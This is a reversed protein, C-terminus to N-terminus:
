AARAVTYDALEHLADRAVGPPLTLLAQQACAAHHRAMADAEAVAGSEQLLRQIEHISADPLVQRKLLITLTRAAAGGHALALLVPLAYIGQRIDMGTAKGMAATDGAIDMLDDYLQFALGLEACYNAIATTEGEPRAALLAGLRGALEFLAGTKDRLIDVHLAVPTALNYANEAERLQGACLRAVCRAGLGHATHGLGALLAIARALMLTGVAAAPINGWRANVSGVGRRQMARDMIDDHYLSALHIMEVAAGARVVRRSPAVADGLTLLLLAPRLRKGGASALHMAMERAQPDRLALNAHLEQEIAVLGQHVAPLQLIRM